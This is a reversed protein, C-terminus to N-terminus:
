SREATLACRSPSASSTLCHSTPPRGMSRTGPDLDPNAALAAAQSQTSSNQHIVLLTIPVLVLVVTAGPIAVRASRLGSRWGAPLPTPRWGRRRLAWVLGVVALALVALGLAVLGVVNDTGSGSAQAARNSSSGRAPASGSPRTVPSALKIGNAAALKRVAASAAGFLGGGGARIAIGSLLRYASSTSHDPWNFGFGNPMVVLLRQKYALSLEIGLFRAYARPKRWLETVAGLDQPSAIIAVRIPFGKRAAAKLAGGLAVQQQVSLGADSGAFLDQYVLVDSGPDGDARAVAPRALAVACAVVLAAAATSALRAILTLRGAAALSLVGRRSDDCEVSVLVERADM